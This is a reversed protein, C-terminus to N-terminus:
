HMLTTADKSNMGRTHTYGPNDEESEESELVTTLFTCANSNATAISYFYMSIHSQNGLCEGFAVKSVEFSINADPM